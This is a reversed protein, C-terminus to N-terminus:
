AGEWSEAAQEDDFVKQCGPCVRLVTANTTVDVIPQYAYVTATVLGTSADLEVRFAGAIDKGTEADVVKAAHAPGGDYTIKVKITDAM